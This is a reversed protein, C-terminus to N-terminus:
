ILEVLVVKVEVSIFTFSFLLNLDLSSLPWNERICIFSSILDGVCALSTFCPVFIARYSDSLCDGKILPLSRTLIFLLEKVVHLCCCVIVAHFSLSFGIIFVFPSM